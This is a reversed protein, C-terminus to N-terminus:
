QALLRAIDNYFAVCMLALLLVIGVKQGLIQAPESLPKGRVLELGYYLLHGGDLVPVPLLNLVGLSVSVLALFGLFSVLGVSATYGAFQAIQIPGSVNRWSVEGTLMRGMLKLTLVSLDWTQVVAAPIAQLPGYKRVARLDQWLDPDVDVGAGIRGSRATGEGVAGITIPLEITGDGRQVELRTSAGPHARIWDVLASWDAVAQGDVALIRDGPRLGAQEAPSGAEVTGILPSVPPQYPTMGLAPFLVEPDASLGDLSLLYESSGGDADRARVRVTPTRLASKLLETRLENWTVVATGDVEVIEEGGRLGARYAASDAPVEALLPKLGPIGIMFIAWYAVIAFLFNLLPGAAVILMRTGVPQRNFARHAEEPAVPGEREDLMKVYGGLPVASIWYETGDRGRWGWLRSGFGISFRLVRVGLRRAVWYHGWEHVAVLVAIAFIFSPISILWDPM